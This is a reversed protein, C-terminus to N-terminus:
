GLVDPWLADSIFLGERTLRLHSDCWTLWGGRVYGEIVQGGLERIEYGTENFFRQSEVGELRRLGFVLRERAADQPSLQESETVPSVGALVRRVYTTTSRHNMERRGATFRAAGPGAGFYTRGTWYVENHRCRFGPRAFNSVEYHEFGAATLVGMATEYMERELSESCPTLDGRLKRGWFSTGREWTLGYVSVHDPGLQLAMRLDDEWEALSEGPTGFMLDLSLVPIWERATHWSRLIDQRRHDRELLALKREAFSQVGLSLRTVGGDRLVELKTPGVDLPNAEVSFEHSRALPFWHGVLGM